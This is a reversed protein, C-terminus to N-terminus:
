ARVSASSCREYRPGESGPITPEANELIRPLSGEAQENVDCSVENAHLVLLVPVLLQLDREGKERGREREKKPQVEEM